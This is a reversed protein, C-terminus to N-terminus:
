DPTALDRESTSSPVDKGSKVSEAEYDAVM